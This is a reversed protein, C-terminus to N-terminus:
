FLVPPVQAFGNQFPSNIRVLASHQTATSTLILRCAMNRHRRCGHLVLEIKIACTQYRSSVMEVAFDIMVALTTKWSKLTHYCKISRGTIRVKHPGGMLIKRNVVFSYWVMSRVQVGLLMAVLGSLAVNHM